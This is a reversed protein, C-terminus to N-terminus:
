NAPGLLTLAVALKEGLGMEETSLLCSMFCVMLLSREGVDPPKEGELECFWAEESGRSGDLPRGERGEMFFSGRVEGVNPPPGM